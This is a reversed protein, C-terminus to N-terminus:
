TLGLLGAEDTLPLHFTQCSRPRGSSLGGGLVVGLLMHHCYRTHFFIGLLQAACRPGTVAGWEAAEVPLGGGGSLGPRDRM